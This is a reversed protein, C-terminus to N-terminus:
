VVPAREFFVEMWIGDLSMKQPTTNGNRFLAYVGCEPANIHAPLIEPAGWLDADGGVIKTTLTNLIFATMGRGVTGPIGLLQIGGSNGNGAGAALFGTNYTYQNAGKIRLLVGKITADDPIADGDFDTLKLFPVNTNHGTVQSVAKIGDELLANQLGTWGFAQSGVTSRPRKIISELM